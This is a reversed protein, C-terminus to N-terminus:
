WDLRMENTDRFGLSTYLPRGEESAHLRLTQYGQQKCYLIAREVIRRAYGKRRFGAATYVSHLYPTRGSINRYHPLLDLMVVAGSAVAERDVEILWAFLSTGLSRAVYRNYALDMADFQALAVTQSRLRAMDEFMLRRHRVLVPVDSMVAPRLVFTETM